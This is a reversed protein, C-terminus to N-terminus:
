KIQNTVWTMHVFLIFQVYLVLQKLFMLFCLLNFSHLLVYVEVSHIQSFYDSFEKM